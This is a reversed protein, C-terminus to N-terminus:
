KGAGTREAASASGPPHSAGISITPMTESVRVSARFASASGSTYRENQCFPANEFCRTTRVAEIRACDGPEDPAFHVRTSGVADTSCKVVIASIRRSETAGRVNAM